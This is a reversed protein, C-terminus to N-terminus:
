SSFTVSRAVEAEHHVQFAPIFFLHHLLQALLPQLRQQVGLLPDIDPRIHQGSLENFYSFSRRLTVFLLAVAGLTYAVSVAPMKLQQFRRYDSLDRAM